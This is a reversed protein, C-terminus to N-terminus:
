TRNSPTTISHQKGLTSASKLLSPFTCNSSKEALLGLETEAQPPLIDTGAWYCPGQHYWSHLFRCSGNHSTFEDGFTHGELNKSILWPQYVYWPECMKDFHPKVTKGTARSQESPPCLPSGVLPRPRQPRQRRGASCQLRAPLPRGQAPPPPQLSAM